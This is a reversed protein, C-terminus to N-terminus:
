HLVRFVSECRLLKVFEKKTCTLTLAKQVAQSLMPQVDM